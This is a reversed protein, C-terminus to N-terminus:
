TTIDEKWHYFLIYYNLLAGNSDGKLSASKENGQHHGTEPGADATQLRQGPM